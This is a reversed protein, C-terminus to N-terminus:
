IIRRLMKFKNLRGDEEMHCKRCLWKFDNVDRKYHSSINALDIPYNIKCIECSNPKLKRRRVWQHITHIKAEKGNDM